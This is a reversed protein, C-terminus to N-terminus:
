DEYRNVVLDVASGKPLQKGAKPRQSLVTGAMVDEDTKHRVRGVRLGARKLKSRAYRLRTKIVRPVAVLPAGAAPAPQVPKGKAAPEVSWSLKQPGTARKAAAAAAARAGAAPPPTVDSPRSLRSPRSPAPSASSSRVPPKGTSLVVVIARGERLTQRALPDQLAVSGKPVLPDAREGAVLLGLGLKRAMGRAHELSFGVLAPVPRAPARGGLWGLTASTGAGALLAVIVVLAAYSRRPGILALDDIPNYSGSQDARPAGQSSWSV